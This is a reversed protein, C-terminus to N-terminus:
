VKCMVERKSTIYEHASDINKYLKVETSPQQLQFCMNIFGRAAPSHIVIATGMIHKKNREKNKKMFSVIKPICKMNISQMNTWDMYILFKRGKATEKELKKLVKECIRSCEAPNTCAVSINLVKKTNDNWQITSM